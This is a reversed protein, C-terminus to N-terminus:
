RFGGLFGARFLRLVRRVEGRRLSSTLAAATRRDGRRGALALLERLAVTESRDSPTRRAVRRLDELVPMGGSQLGLIRLATMTKLCHGCHGCNGPGEEACVRLLDLTGPERALREVKAWHPAGNGHHVIQRTASSWLPDTAPHSGNPWLASWSQQAALYTTSFGAAHAL